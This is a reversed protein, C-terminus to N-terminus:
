KFGLGNILVLDKIADEYDRELILIYGHIEAWKLIAMLGSDEMPITSGYGAWLNGMTLVEHQDKGSGLTSASDNLHLMIPVDILLSSVDELWKVARDYTDLAIGCSFLHATDICLGIKMGHTNIKGNIIDKFREYIKNPTEFTAPSSKAANIELWLTVMPIVNSYNSFDTISEIAKTFAADDHAASDLHIIVGEAGIESAIRLEKKINHVTGRKGKWPNDLYTGHIVVRAGTSAIIEKCQKKDDPTLTEDFNRPGCAFIQLSPSKIGFSKLLKIDSKMADPMTRTIKKGDIIVQKTTHLGISM